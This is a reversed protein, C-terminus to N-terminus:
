LAKRLKPRKPQSNGRSSACWSVLNSFESVLGTTQDTATAAFTYCYGNMAESWTCQTDTVECVVMQLDVEWVTYSVGALPTGDVATTVPEWYLTVSQAACHACWLLLLWRM